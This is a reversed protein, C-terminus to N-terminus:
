KVYSGCYECTVIAGKQKIIRAGCSACGIVETEAQMKTQATAAPLTKSPIVTTKAPRTRKLIKAGASIAWVSLAIVLLCFIAGGLAGASTCDRLLGFILLLSFIVGVSYGIINLTIGWARKAAVSAGSKEM